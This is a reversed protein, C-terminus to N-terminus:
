SIFRKAFQSLGIIEIGQPVSPRFHKLNITVLYDCGNALACYYQYCDEIDSFDTDSVSQQLSQDDMRVVGVFSLLASLTSRVSATKEPEYVGQKKLELGLLYTLTYLSGESIAAEMAGEHAAMLISEADDFFQRHGYYEMIINTDLFGRM